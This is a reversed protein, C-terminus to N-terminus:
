DSPNALFALGSDILEGIEPNASGISALERELKDRLEVAGANRSAELLELRALWADPHQQLASYAEDL